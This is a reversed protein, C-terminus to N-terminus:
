KAPEPATPADDNWIDRVMLWKGNTRQWVEIYKGTEVTKGAADIVSSTGAHWALDGSIGVDGIGDKDTLGEAKAAAIDKTLFDKIAARGILAPANTPMLVADEAYLAVIKDVEGANYADNWLVTGARIAAEDTALTAPTQTTPATQGCGAAFVLAVLLALLKPVAHVM